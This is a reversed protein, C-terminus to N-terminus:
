NCSAAVCNSKLNTNWIRWLKGKMKVQRLLKVSNKNKLASLEVPTQYDNGSRYCEVLFNIRQRCIFNNLPEKTKRWRQPIVKNTLNKGVLPYNMTEPANYNWVVSGNPLEDIISPYQYFEARQWSGERIQGLLNHAPIFALIICTVIVSAPTLLKMINYAQALFLKFLPATIICSLAIIPLGFRPMKRLGFWWVIGLTITLLFFLLRLSLRRNNIDRISLLISYCFGVPVFTTWVVGVGSGQSYSYGARSYEIWPYIFWEATSRVFVRGYNLATIKATNFGDFITRGFIEIELPFFPNNTAVAARIFWFASPLLVGAIAFVGLHIFSRGVDNRETYVVSLMICFWIAGYIYFTPKTGVAVGIAASCFFITIKYWTEKLFKANPSKRFLFIAISAMIFSTGYLDIYGRFTQFLCIPVTAFVIVSLIAPSREGAIKHAIAYIAFYAIVTVLINFWLTFFELGSFLMLMMPIEANGPLSYHWDAINPIQLSQNQLWHIAVPYHYNLADYGTPYSLLSELFFVSWSAIVVIISVRIFAPYHNIERVLQIYLNKKCDHQLKRRFAYLLLLVLTMQVLIIGIPKVKLWGFIECLGIIQVPILIFLFFCVMFYLISLASKSPMELKSCLVFSALAALSFECIVPILNM